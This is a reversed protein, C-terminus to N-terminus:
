AKTWPDTVVKSTVLDVRRGAGELAKRVREAFGPLVVVETAYHGADVIPLGLSKAELAAHHNVDGTVYVDAGANAAARILEGGSGGCVAVKKVKASLDGEVRLFANLRESWRALCDALTLEEPLYGIRGFGTGPEPNDLRYVDYAIEEYPHVSKIASLVGNLRDRSVVAELRFEEIRNLEGIKGAYPRATPAPVFTGVGATRFTCGAYDGIIGGGSEMIADVLADVAEGPAFVALKYPAVEVAPALPRADKLGLVEALADSVGWRARDLSTHASYVAIDKKVLYSLLAALPDDYTLRPLPKFILPHHAVLMGAGVEVAEAAVEFTVDLCFLVRGVEKLPDGMQFGTPDDGYKLRPPAITEVAEIVESVLAPM